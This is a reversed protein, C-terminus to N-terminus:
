APLAPLTDISFNTAQIKAFTADGVVQLTDDLTAAQKVKLDGGLTTLKGDAVITNDKLISQDEVTLSGTVSTTGVVEVNSNFKTDGNVVLTDTSTLPTGIVTNGGIILDGQTEVNSKFVQDDVWTKTGRVTQDADISVYLTGTSSVVWEDNVTYYIFQGASIVRGASATWTAAVTGDVTNM